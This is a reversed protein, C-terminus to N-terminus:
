SLTPALEIGDHHEAFILLFGQPAAGLHAWDITAPVLDFLYVVEHHNICILKHHDQLHNTANPWM